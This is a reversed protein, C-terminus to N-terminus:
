LAGGRVSTLKSAHQDVPERDVATGGPPLAKWREGFADVEDVVFLDVGDYLPQPVAPHDAVVSRAFRGLARWELRGRRLRESARVRERRRATGRRQTAREGREPDPAAVLHDHRREREDCGDARYDVRTCHRDEGLDVVGEREVRVVDGGPDR